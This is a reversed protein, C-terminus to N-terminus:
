TSSEDEGSGPRGRMMELSVRITESIENPMGSLPLRPAALPRVEAEDIVLLKIFGIRVTDGVRARVEEDGVAHDNVYTGNKSGLDRFLLCADGHRVNCHERSVM